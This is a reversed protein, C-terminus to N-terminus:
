QRTWTCPDCYPSYMMMEGDDWTGSLTTAQMNAFFRLIIHDDDFSVEGTFGIEEWVGVVKGPNNEAIILQIEGGRYPGRWLGYPEPPTEQQLLSCSSLCLALVVILIRM